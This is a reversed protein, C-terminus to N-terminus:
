ARRKKNADLPVVNGAPKNKAAKMGAVAPAAAKKAIKARAKDALHLYRNATGLQHHGLAWMIEAAEAGNMAMHSGVSHRLGHLGLAEPLGAEARVIRWPASLNVPQDGTRAPFVLDDLGGPPQREFIEVAPKPLGIIRPKGTRKGTKHDGPPLEIVAAELDVHRWRCGAIEGRRAGTMAIVRIADAVAPRLRKQNELRDLAAFLDAYQGETEVFAERARHAGVKVDAAPNRSTLGESIAWALVSRLLTVSDRATTEGGVIRRGGRAKQRADVVTKGDRIKAFMRRVKEATLTDAYERGLQPKLHRRIRGEDIERTSAAKEAFKASALYADLIDGVTAAERRARKDGLPDGGEHVLAAWKRATERAEDPALAGVKAITARRSRGEATRYQFIFSHSGSARLALGFGAISTDWIFRDREPTKVGDVLRKTIKAREAM